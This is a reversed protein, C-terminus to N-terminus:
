MWHMSLIDYSEHHYVYYKWSCTRSVNFKQHTFSNTYFFGGFCWYKPSITIKVISFHKYVINCSFLTWQRAIGTKTVSERWGLSSSPLDASTTHPSTDLWPAHLSNCSRVPCSSRWLYDLVLDDLSFNYNCAKEPNQFPLHTNQPPPPTNLNFIRKEKRNVQSWIFNNNTQFLRGYRM